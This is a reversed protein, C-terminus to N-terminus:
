FQDLFKLWHDHAIQNHANLYELAIYRTKNGYSKLARIMLAVIEDTSTPNRVKMSDPMWYIEESVVCPIGNYVFDAVVINFTETFSVQTGLDM